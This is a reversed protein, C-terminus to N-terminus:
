PNDFEQEITRLETLVAHAAFFLKSLEDRGEYLDEELAQYALVQEATLFYFRVMGADTMPFASVPTANNLYHQAGALLYEAAARVAEYQGAGITGSGDSLYLSTTGDALCALTFMGEPMGTEMLLGFVKYPFNEPTIGIEGSKLNLM